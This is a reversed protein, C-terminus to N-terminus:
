SHCRAIYFLTMYRRGFLYLRHEAVISARTHRLAPPLDPADAPWVKISEQMPLRISLHRTIWWIGGDRRTDDPTNHTTLEAGGDPLNTFRLISTLNGFPYAFAINMYTRARHRHTSYLAAYLVREATDITYTRVWARRREGGAGEDRVAFIRSHAVAEGAAAGFPFDTQEIRRAMRGFLALPLKMLRHPRALTELAYQATHEYFHVVAPALASPDFGQQRHAGIDDVLGRPDTAIPDALETREFFDAGV